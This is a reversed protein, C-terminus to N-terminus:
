VHTPKTHQGRVFHLMFTVKDACQEGCMSCRFPSGPEHCGKHIVYMLSDEFTIGCFSCRWPLGEQAYDDISTPGTLPNPHPHSSQSSSIQASPSESSSRYSPGTEMRVHSREPLMLPRQTPLFRLSQHPVQVETEMARSSSAVDGRHIGISHQRDGNDSQRRSLQSNTAQSEAPREHMPPRNQIPHVFVSEQERRPEAENRTHNGVSEEDASPNNEVPVVDVVSWEETKITISNGGPSQLSQESINVSSATEKSVSSDNDNDGSPAFPRSESVRGPVHVSLNSGGMGPSTLPSSTPILQMTSSTNMLGSDLSRSRIGVQRSAALAMTQPVNGPSVPSLSGPSDVPPSLLDLSSGACCSNKIHRQYEAEDALLVGCKCRRPNWQYLRSHGKMHGQLARTTQFQRGCLRCTVPMSGLPPSLGKKGGTRVNVRSLMRTKKPNKMLFPHDNAIHKQLSRLGGVFVQCHPCSRRKETHIKLHETLHQINSFQAHCLNCTHTQINTMSTKHSRRHRQFSALTNFNAPCLPCAFPKVGMHKNVHMTLRQRNSFVRECMNCKFLGQPNGSTSGHEGSASVNEPNDGVEGQSMDDGDDDGEDDEDILVFQGDAPGPSYMVTESSTQSDQRSLDQAEPARVNSSKIGGEAVYSQPMQRSGSSGYIRDTSPPRTSSTEDSSRSRQIRPDGFAPDSKMQQNRDMGSFIGPDCLYLTYVALVIVLQVTVQIVHICSM